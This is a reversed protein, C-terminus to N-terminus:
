LKLFNVEIMRKFLFDVDLNIYNLKYVCDIAYIIEISQTIKKTLKRIM